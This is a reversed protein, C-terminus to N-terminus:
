VKLTEDKAPAPPIMKTNRKHRAGAKATGAYPDGHPRVKFVASRQQM